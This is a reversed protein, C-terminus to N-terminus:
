HRVSLGRCVQVLIRLAERKWKNYLTKEKKMLGKKKIKTANM